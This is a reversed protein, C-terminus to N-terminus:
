KGMRRLRENSFGNVFEKIAEHWEASGRKLKGVIEAAEDNLVYAGPLNNQATQKGLEYLSAM